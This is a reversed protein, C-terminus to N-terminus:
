PPTNNGLASISTTTPLRRGAYDFLKKLIRDHRAFVASIVLTTTVSRHSIKVEDGSSFNLHQNLKDLTLVAMGLALLCFQRIGKENPPILLTYSLANDLHHRAIAILHQLGRQFHVDNCGARIENLDFGANQFIERPLWCAGRTRDGWIDKLINTMQLGQGFSVALSMLEQENVSITQRYDCFLATLMEGVVGAVHYCYQDMAAMDKLGQTTEMSQYHAMGQAMIRICRELAKRQNRNFSHTIRIVAPVNRVLDREEALTHSSLLPYLQEAFDEATATAAVVDIFQDTFQRTKEQDLAGDDEITDAIRCLLYANSVVRKLDAPLKPITLAFTRSVFRLIHTQYAEDAPTPPCSTHM